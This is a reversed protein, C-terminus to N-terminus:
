HSAGRRVHAPNRTSASFIFSVSILHDCVAVSLPLHISTRFGNIIDDVHAKTPNGRIVEDLSSYNLLQLKTGANPVQTIKLLGSRVYAMPDPIIPRPKYKSRKRM